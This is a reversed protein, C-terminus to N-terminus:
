LKVDPNPNGKVHMMFSATSDLLFESDRLKVLFVPHNSSEREEREKPTVAFLV